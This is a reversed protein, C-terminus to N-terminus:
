CLDLEKKLNNIDELNEVSYCTVKSDIRKVLNTLVKGPGIEIFTTIGLQNIMMKISDYFFVTHTMQKKMLEPLEIIELPKATANMILPAVPVFYNMNRVEEYITEAAKNMLPSHFAGSVKLPLVKRIGANHLDVITKEMNENTGSIVLQNLSNYNAIYTNNKECISLVEEYSSGLVASMMGKNETSSKEMAESRIKILKLIDVLSFVGSVYLATYEGLSFGAFASPSIDIEKKIVEYLAISTLLIAPQTYLTDNLQSNEKFVFDTIKFNLIKEANKYLKQICSFNKYIDYGMYPYQAGQGPFLFAVREM